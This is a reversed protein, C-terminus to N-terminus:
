MGNAYSFNFTLQYQNCGRGWSLIRILLLLDTVGALQFSSLRPDWYLILVKFKQFTKKNTAQHVKTLKFLIAELLRKKLNSGSLAKSFKRLFVFMPVSCFAHLVSIQQSLYFIRPLNFNHCSEFLQSHLLVTFINLKM